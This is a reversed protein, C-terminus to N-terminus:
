GARLRSQPTAVDDVGDWLESRDFISQGTAEPNLSMLHAANALAMFPDIKGFGAEDRAVMMATRTPIVRLNGVCWALLELGGHVFTRDALKREVTKIAGMLAIGQRVADLTEADQTVGIAALADVVVGIGAADVGVQALLGADQVRSVLDIVYKVDPPYEAGPEAILVDQLLELPLDRLEPDDLADPSFAFVTLSGERKFKAYHEANAKRRKLGELSVLAHAWALWRKTLKERGIAGIGLLDDLGGGDHGITIVEARDLLADLTLAKDVGREWFLAGAWGDARQALGVQVNLHKADFDILSAKGAREAEARKGAIFHPDVSKGLNPNPIYWYKPDEYLAKEGGAAKLFRSPFEYIISLSQPDVIEGDRVKRFYDLKQAFIGVPQKPSQTTLYIVFGEPRSALGGEAERIMSEANARPGFLWLEDVLLGITKKGSVTEADAAVVKLTAGTTRHTILRQAEHVHLLDHLQKDARIMDRAPVFVNNATEITPSLIYFEGSDRWNRLLATVMTGAAGTSKINKKAVSQFFYRILRRGTAAEYAGFLARPLDFVWPLSVEGFTPRGPVDVIHLGRFIELATEAEAPFLPDFPVLSRREVIREEWDPCATSWVPVLPAAAVGVLPASIPEGSSGIEGDAIIM